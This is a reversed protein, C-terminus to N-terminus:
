KRKQQLTQAKLLGEHDTPRDVWVLEFGNPYHEIYRSYIKENRTEASLDHRLWDESSSICQVLIHGDESIAMGHYTKGRLKGNSFCYIKNRM